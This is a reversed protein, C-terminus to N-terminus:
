IMDEAMVIWNMNKCGANKLKTKSNDERKRVPRENQKKGEPKLVLITYENRIGSMCAVYGILRM